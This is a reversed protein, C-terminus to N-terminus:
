SADVKLVRYVPQRKSIKKQVIGRKIFEEYIHVYRNFAELSRHGTIARTLIQNRTKGVLNTIYSHRCAHFGKGCVDRFDKRLENVGEPFLFYDKKDTGYIRKQYEDVCQNYRNIIINMTEIDTIPIVRGDKFDMTSRGKLPKREVHNNKDRVRYKSKVQSKIVLYGYITHKEKELADIMWGEIGDEIHEEFFIDEICLSYLENFRMGTNYLTIFFEKSVGLHNKLNKYEVDKIIDDSGRCNADVLKREFCKCRMVSAPTLYNREVMSNMFGNLTRICHNKTSFSLLDNTEDVLDPQSYDSRKRASHRLWLRFDRFYFHWKEVNLEKAEFLFYPLVYRSFYLITCEHSNPCNEVVDEFYERVMKDVSFFKKKEKLYALGSTHNKYDTFTHCRKIFHQAEEKTKFPYEGKFNKDDEIVKKPICVNKNNKWYRLYFRDGCKLKRKQIHM